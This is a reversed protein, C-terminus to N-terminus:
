AAAQVEIAGPDVKVSPGMTSSLHISKLYRGKAAPPKATAATNNTFSRVVRCGKDGCNKLAAAKAAEASDMGCSAGIKKAGRNRAVAGFGKGVPCGTVSQCNKGGAKECKRRACEMAEFAGAVGQCYGYAGSNPDGTVATAAGALPTFAVLGFLFIFATPLGGLWRASM